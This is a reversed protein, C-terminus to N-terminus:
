KLVKILLSGDKKLTVECPHSGIGLNLEDRITRPLKVTAQHKEVIIKSRETIEEEIRLELEKIIEQPIGEKKAM